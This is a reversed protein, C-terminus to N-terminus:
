DSNFFYYKLKMHALDSKFDKNFFDESEKSLKKNLIM